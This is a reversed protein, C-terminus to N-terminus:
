ISFFASKGNNQGFLTCLYFIGMHIGYQTSIIPETARRAESGLSITRVHKGQLDSNHRFNDSSLYFQPHGLISNEQLSNHGGGGVHDFFANKHM